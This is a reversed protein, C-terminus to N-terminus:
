HKANLEPEYLRFWVDFNLALEATSNTIFSGSEEGQLAQELVSLDFIEGLRSDTQHLAHDLQLRVETAYEPDRTSPYPAKPRNIINDPILEMAGSKLLAKEVNLHSKLLWPTAFALEILRHDCFPVRVELGASMSLRDKRELLTPLFRTLALYSIFQLKEEQPVTTSTSIGVETAAKDYDARLYGELDLASVIDPRFARLIRQHLRGHAPSDALWPFTGSNIASPDHFWRYGGMVEDAAEGSLAVTATSKVSHFLSLLSLDLDGIGNPLDRSKVAEKRLAPLALDRGNFIFRHHQTGLYKAASQAYLSDETGSIWHGNEDQSRFDVQYTQLASDGIARQALASVITSDLGGSLLSGLPVDSVVQKSVIDDLLERIAEVSDEYSLSHFGPVFNWYKRESTQIQGNIARFSLITGPPVEHINRYPTTGVKKHLPLMLQIVGSGDVVASVNPHALIAKIESGFIVGQPTPSYYLPKVGSRDRVLYLTQTVSDWVAFAFIGNLKEAAVEGSHQWAQLVVETDGKTIFSAGSVILKERLEKFNYVEGTYVITFRGGYQSHMPQISGAVDLIALRRHGLAIPGDIFTGGADPGRRIMTETMAELTQRRHFPISTDLFGTIGCM